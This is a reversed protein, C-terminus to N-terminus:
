MLFNAVNENTQDVNTLNYLPFIEKMKTLSQTLKQAWIIRIITDTQKSVTKDQDSRTPEQSNSGIFERSRSLFKFSSLTM